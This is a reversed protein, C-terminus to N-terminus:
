GLKQDVDEVYVSLWKKQGEEIQDGMPLAGSKSQDLLGASILHSRKKEQKTLRQRLEDEPLSKQLSLVRRPFTEDLEQGKTGSLDRQERIVQALEQAYKNVTPGMHVQRPGPGSREYNIPSLLRQTEIFRISVSRQLEKLWEPAPDARLNLLEGFNELIDEFSFMDGTFTNVWKKSDIRILEPIFYEITRVSFNDNAIQQYTDAPKYIYFQEAKGAETFH